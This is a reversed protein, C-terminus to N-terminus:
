MPVTVSGHFESLSNVGSFCRTIEPARPLVAMKGDLLIRKLLDLSSPAMSCCQNNVDGLNPDHLGLLSPLFLKQARDHARIDAKTPRFLLPNKVVGKRCVWSFAPGYINRTILPDGSATCAKSHIGRGTKCWKQRALIGFSHCQFVLQLSTLFNKIEQYAM